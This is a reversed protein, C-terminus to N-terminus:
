VALLAPRAPLMRALEHVTVPKHLVAFGSARAARLRDPSTDGTLLLAPVPHGVREYLAHIAEVGTHGDRLRYDAIIAAPPQRCADLRELAEAGSAAALVEWGLQNLALSLGHLVLAEDDIVVVLRPAGPDTDPTAELSSPQIPRHM